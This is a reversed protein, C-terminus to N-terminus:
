NISTVAASPVGPRLGWPERGPRVTRQRSAVVPACLCPARVSGAVTASRFARQRGRGALSCPWALAARRARRSQRAQRVPVAAPVRPPAPRSAEGAARAQTARGKTRTRARIARARSTPVHPHPCRADADHRATQGRAHPQASARGPRVKPAIQNDSITQERM